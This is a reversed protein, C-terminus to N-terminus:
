RQAPLVPPQQLAILQQEPNRQGVRSLARDLGGTRTRRLDGILGREHLDLFLDVIEPDFQSGRGMWLQERAQDEGLMRQYPRDSRMAAWSDCVALIRAEVLIETGTRRDPYGTGDFREHHQRVIGAVADLGPVVGILLAGHNPHERLMAWEEPALAGVKTLIEPPIVVKGVDHLRGALEARATTAPDHGLESSLRGVWRGIARGHEYSSLWADVQDAVYQLFDVMPVQDGRVGSACPAVAVGDGIVARDRGLAKARYLARDAIAVLETPDEAHLPCSAAGVSVTVAALEHEALEIPRGGVAARLREAVVALEDPGAGPSLLAFEEGGYRALLAGSRAASGLRGAVETLAQDGAPHGYRDNISKFHDIDIIFLGVSGGTRCARAIEVPLAAELFRRTRLGTLVDTVALRRQEAVLGAMRGLTLAFLVACAGAIVPVERVAGTAYEVLLAVPAVLAAVFLAAVRVPGLGSDSAPSREGLRDMAPHLAAAGLALNGSLWIADLFNGAHYAGNLQQYSYMTDATFIALLNGSLLYFSVPRCGAGLIMRLAVALMALDMVPYALSVVRVLTPSEFPAQPAILFLWSLLGAVVAIVSADLLGPLDRGPTRRRILLTLGAVVLPYHALYLADAPAPYADSGLVYHAVYFTTDAAAYVLQSLGLLLWPLSPRPRNRRAGAWVAVAGSASVACYVIVRVAAFGHPPLLYYTGILVLGVTLYALWVERLLARWLGTSPVRL